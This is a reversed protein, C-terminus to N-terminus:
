AVVGVLGRTKSYQDNYPKMCLGSLSEFVNQASHNLRFCFEDLYAQLYKSGIGHFTKYLWSKAKKFLDLITGSDGHRSLHAIKFLNINRSSVHERELMAEGYNTITKGNMYEYPIVKFKYYSAAFYYNSRSVLISQKRPRKSSTTHSSNQNQNQNGYCQLGSKMLGELLHAADFQSIAQRVKHLMTWATKYTVVLHESLWVANVRCKSHAVLFMTLLWKRLPTRSKEMITGATITTQHHCNYCEYLPSNRSSIIYNSTHECRPCRYGNPWKMEYLFSFCADDTPFIQDFQDMVSTVMRISISM